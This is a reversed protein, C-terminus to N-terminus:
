VGKNLYITKTLRTSAACLESQADTIVSFFRHMLQTYSRRIVHAYSVKTFIATHMVRSKYVKQVCSIRVDEVLKWTNDVLKRM